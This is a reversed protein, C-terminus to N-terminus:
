LTEYTTIAKAKFDIYFTYENIRVAFWYSNYGGNPEFMKTEKVENAENYLAKFVEKDELTIHLDLKPNNLGINASAFLDAKNKLDQLKM